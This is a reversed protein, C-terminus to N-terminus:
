SKSKKSLGDGSESDRNRKKGGSAAKVRVAKALEESDDQERIPLPAPGPQITFAARLQEFLFIDSISFTQSIVWDDSAQARRCRSARESRSKGERLPLQTLGQEM